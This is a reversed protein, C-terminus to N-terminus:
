VPIPVLQTFYVGEAKDCKEVDLTCFWTKYTLLWRCILPPTMVVSLQTEWEGGREVKVHEKPLKTSYNSKMDDM